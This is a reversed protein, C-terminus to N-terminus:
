MLFYYICFVFKLMNIKEENTWGYDLPSVFKQVWRSMITIMEMGKFLRVHEERSLSTNAADKKSMM